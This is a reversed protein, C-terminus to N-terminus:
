NVFDYFLVGPIVLIANYFAHFLMAYILGFHMRIYGLFLGLVIQPAVLIPSLLWININTTDYNFIHMYGFALAFGYFIWKFAKPFGCFLPLPGRFLLEEFLPAIIVAAVIIMLSSMEEFMKTIAHNDMSFLELAELGGIIAIFFFNCIFALALITLLSKLIHKASFNKDEICHPNKIYNLVNKVIIPVDEM